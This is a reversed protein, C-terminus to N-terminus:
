TEGHASRSSIASGTRMCRTSRRASASPAGGSSSPSGASSMPIARCWGPLPASYMPVRPPGFKMRDQLERLEECVPAYLPTHYARHFPLRRCVVSKAQLESQVSGVAQETGWLVAQHPCNDMALYLSGDARESFQRLVARDAPGVSLLVGEPVLGGQMACETVENGRLIHNILEAEGEVEVVGAALLASYEGTSHGVVADPRIGLQTLLALMAQNAGFVAEIASSMEWLRGGDGDTTGPPPFIAQSPLLGRRHDHFARDMLDFWSRVAPFHVCLDALMRTYQSGEGPFLFALRGQPRSRADFYYVGRREKIRGLGPEALREAAFDLKAELDERSCAVIALRVDDSGPGPCNLTCALEPFPVNPNKGLFAKLKGCRASLEVLSEGVVLILETERRMPSRPPKPDRSYEELIAHANIGGFGFASVAARRPELGGHIWPRAEPNLYFPTADLKPNPASAHLTPPLIKQHLALAVKILGAVGAAPICHGIMSKVSGLATVPAGGSREGFVQRLAEIETADGVPTGTGHAEVLGVSRPAIGAREYARQMALVEGEVRPALVGLARGDSATGVAKVLAYIRDGDREADPRRKLVVIGAGEGLLTGDASPHFPRLEGSRSLAGLQCFLLAIPFTTSVQIGGALVLDCEGNLLDKIGLDVAILSSACAADVTFAPGMLDLRNAIRGCMVSHALSPATEANFPPLGSKLAQKIAELEERSYEPHLGGLVRITQDVLMGHQLLTIYGRNVYTGRGLIVQTKERRFPRGLYGADDLAEYALRLALFHEPEGGDVSHPMVGYELPDFKAMGDLYGGRKMYVRDNGETGPEYVDDGGWEGPPDGIADVGSLINEWYSRVDSAKPFLASMGIIAVDRDSDRM